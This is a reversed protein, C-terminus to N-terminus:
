GFLDGLRMGTEIKVVGNELNVWVNRCASLDLEKHCMGCVYGGHYSLAVDHSCATEDAEQAQGDHLMDFASLVRDPLSIDTGLIDVSNSDGM